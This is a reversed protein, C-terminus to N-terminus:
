HSRFCYPGMREYGEDCLLFYTSISWPLFTTIWFGAIAPQFEYMFHIRFPQFNVHKDKLNLARFISFIQNGMMELHAYIILLRSIDLLYELCYFCLFYCVLGIYLIWSVEWAFHKKLLFVNVLYTDIVGELTQLQVTRCGINEIIIFPGM